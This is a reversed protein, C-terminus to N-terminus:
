FLYRIEGKCIPRVTFNHNIGFCDYSAAKKKSKDSEKREVSDNIKSRKYQSRRKWTFFRKM